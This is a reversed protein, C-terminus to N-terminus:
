PVRQIYQRDRIQRQLLVHRVRYNGPNEEHCAQILAELDQYIIKDAGIEDAM